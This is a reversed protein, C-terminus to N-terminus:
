LSVDCANRCHGVALNTAHRNVVFSRPGKRVLHSMIQPQEMGKFPLRKAVLAGAAISALETTVQDTFRRCVRPGTPPPVEPLWGAQRRPVAVTAPRVVLVIPVGACVITLPFHCISIGPPSVDITIVDTGIAFRRKDTAFVCEHAVQVLWQCVIDHRVVVGAVLGKDRLLQAQAARVQLEKQSIM